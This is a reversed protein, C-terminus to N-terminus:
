QSNDLHGGSALVSVPTCEPVVWDFRVLVVFRMFGFVSPGFLDM